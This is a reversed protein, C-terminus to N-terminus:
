ETPKSIINVTSTSTGGNPNILEIIKKRNIITNDTKTNTIYSLNYEINMLFLVKCQGQEDSMIQDGLNKGYPKCFANMNIGDYHLDYKTNPSLGTGFIEMPYCKTKVVKSAPTTLLGGSVLGM